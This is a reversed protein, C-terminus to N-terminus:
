KDGKYKANFRSLQMYVEGRVEVGKAGKLQQPIDKVGRINATIDDGTKGDGRTAAIKLKGNADYRISCALGDIKPTMLYGGKIPGSWKLLTDDDYCKDLSLMPREHKVDAGFRSEGMSQLIKAKPKAARLAEVLKDFTPDDIEPEAKDWYLANHHEVLKELEDGGMTALKQLLAKSNASVNTM